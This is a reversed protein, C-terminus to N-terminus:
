RSNRESLQEAVAGAGEAITHTPFQQCHQNVAAVIGEFDTERMKHGAWGAGTHLVYRIDAVEEVWRSEPVFYYTVRIQTDGPAFSM